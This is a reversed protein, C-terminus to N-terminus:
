ARPHGKKFVKALYEESYDIYESTVDPSSHGLILGILRLDAGNESLHTACAHRLRHLTIHKKFPSYENNIRANLEQMDNDNLPRNGKPSVFFFNSCHASLKTPRVKKLYARLSKRLVGMFPVFRQKGRKGYRVFIYQQEWNVDCYQLKCIENRRMGTAYALDIIAYDTIGQATKRPINALIIGIEEPSIYDAQRRPRPMTLGPMRLPLKYFKIWRNLVVTATAFTSRSCKNDMMERLYAEINAESLEHEGHQTMWRAIRTLASGYCRISHNSLRRPIRQAALFEDAQEFM